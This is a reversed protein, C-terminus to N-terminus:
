KNSQRGRSDPIRTFYMKNVEAGLLLIMMCFYIWLMILCVAALGGYIYSANPFNTIYLSYFYSYVIWGLSSFVAGPLHLIVDHRIHSSRKAISVYMFTFIVSMIVILLPSRLRMFISRFSEGLMNGLLGGFLLFASTLTIIVIFILTSILSKM